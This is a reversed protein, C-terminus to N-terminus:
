LTWSWRRSMDLIFDLIKLRIDWIYNIVLMNIEILYNFPPIFYSSLIEANETFRNVKKQM